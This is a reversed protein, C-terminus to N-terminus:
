SPQVPIPALAHVPFHDDPADTLMTVLVDCQEAIRTMVEQCKELGGLLNWLKARYNLDFSVKCGHEKAKKMGAIIAEPTTESLAAFLGGSHFWRVNKGFIGDWDFDDPQLLQAAENSRNYFVVPARCGQGGDSGLSMDLVCKAPNSQRFVTAM